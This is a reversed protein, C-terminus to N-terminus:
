LYFDASVSHMCLFLSLLTFSVLGPYSPQPWVRPEPPAAQPNELNRLWLVDDLTKSVQPIRFTESAWEIGRSIGKKLFKMDKRVVEGFHSFDGIVRM